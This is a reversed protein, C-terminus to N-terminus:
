PLLGPGIELFFALVPGPFQRGQAPVLVVANGLLYVPVILSEEFLARHNRGPCRLDRAANHGHSSEALAQHLHVAPQLYILSSRQGFQVLQIGM